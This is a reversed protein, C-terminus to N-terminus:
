ETKSLVAVVYTGGDAVVNFAPGGDPDVVWGEKILKTLEENFLKYNNSPEVLIKKLLM